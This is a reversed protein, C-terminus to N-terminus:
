LRRFLSAGCYSTNGVKTFAGPALIGSMPYEIGTTDGNNYVGITYMNLNVPSPTPNYITMGFGSGPDSDLYEVIMLDDTQAQIPLSACFLFFGLWWKFASFFDM